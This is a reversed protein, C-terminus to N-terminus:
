KTKNNDDQKKEQKQINESIKKVTKSFRGGEAFYKEDPIDTDFSKKKPASKDVQKVYKDTEQITGSYNGSLQDAAIQERVSERVQEQAPTVGSFKVSTSLSNIFSGGDEGAGWKRKYHNNLFENDVQLWRKQIESFITAGDIGNYLNTDGRLKMSNFMQALDEITLWDDESVILISMEAIQEATLGRKVNFYKNLNTILFGVMMELQLTDYVGKLKVISTCERRIDTNKLSLTLRVVSSEDRTIVAPFLREIFM